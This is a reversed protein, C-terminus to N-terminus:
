PVCTAGGPLSSALARCLGEGVCVWRNAYTQAEPRVSYAFCLQGAPCFTGCRTTRDQLATPACWGHAHLPSRGSCFTGDPCAGCAGGCVAVGPITPCDAPEPLSEGTWRDGDAYHARDAGGNDAFLTGMNFPVCV